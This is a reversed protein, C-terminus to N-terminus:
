KHKPAKTNKKMISINEGVLNADGAYVLLWHTWESGIGGEKRSVEQHWLAHHLQYDTPWM